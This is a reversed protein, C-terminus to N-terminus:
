PELYDHETSEAVQEIVHCGFSGNSEKYPNDTAQALRTTPSNSDRKFGTSLVLPSQSKIKMKRRILDDPLHDNSQLLMKRLGWQAGM